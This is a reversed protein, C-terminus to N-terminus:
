SSPRDNAAALQEEIYKLDEESLRRVPVTTTRGNEKLLRVKGGLVRVLRGVASFTGTNDMWTRVPLIDGEGDFDVSIDEALGLAGGAPAEQDRRRSRNPQPYRVNPIFRTDPAVNPTPNIGTTPLPNSQIPRRRRIESRNLQNPASSSEQSKRFQDLRPSTPRSRRRPVGTGPFSQPARPSSLRREASHPAPGGPKRYRPAANRNGSQAHMRDGSCFVAVCLCIMSAFAPWYRFRFAFM